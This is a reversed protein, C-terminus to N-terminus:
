ALSTKTDEIATGLHKERTGMIWDFWPKTVCWNANPNTGMHHDYHWPLHQMAWDTNQHSKKHKLYYNLACYHFTLMLVPATTILSLALVSGGILAWSEKGQPNAGLAFRQYAPDIFNHKRSNRHHEQWHFRWFSSDQKGFGHLVYKHLTWELGNALFLGLPIWLLNVLNHM